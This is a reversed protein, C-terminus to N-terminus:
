NNIHNTPSAIKVFVHFIIIYTPIITISWIFDFSFLAFIHHQMWQVSLKFVIKNFELYILIWTYLVKNAVHKKKFLYAILASFVFWSRNIYNHMHAFNNFCAKQM